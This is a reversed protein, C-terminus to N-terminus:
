MMGIKKGSKAGALHGIVFRAFKQPFTKKKIRWSSFM